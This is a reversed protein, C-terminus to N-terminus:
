KVIINFIIFIRFLNNIDIVIKKCVKRVNYSWCFIDMFMWVFLYWIYSIIKFIKYYKIGIICLVRFELFRLMELNFIRVIM